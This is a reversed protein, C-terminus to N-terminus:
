TYKQERPPWWAFTFRPARSCITLTGCLYLGLGQCSLKRDRDGCTLCCSTSPLLVPPAGVERAERNDSVRQVKIIKEQNVTVMVTGDRTLALDNIRLLKVRRLLQGEVDYTYMIRRVWLWCKYDQM